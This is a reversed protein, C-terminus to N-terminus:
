DIKLLFIEGQHFFKVECEPAHKKMQDVFEQPDGRHIVFTWFHCPIALKAGSDAVLRAAEESNLNGYQGNIPVIIIDPKVEMVTKIVVTNYATDAAYYITIGDIELVMGLADPALEGHDAYVAKITIDNLKVSDGPKMGMIRSKDIGMALAMNAATVSGLMKTKNNSMLIPIADIDFHDLHDHSTILIDVNLEHPTILKPIMRKFGIVREVCDTLYPDIVIVSDSSDKIIFGAQGIWTIAIECKRVRTSAIRCALDM